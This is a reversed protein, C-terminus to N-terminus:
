PVGDFQPNPRFFFYDITLVPPDCSGAPGGGDRHIFKVRITDTDAVSRSQLVWCPNINYQLGSYQFQTPEAQVFVKDGVRVGRAACTYTAEDAITLAGPNVYCSGAGAYTFYAASSGVKTDVVPSPSAAARPTVTAQVATSTATAAPTPSQAYATSSVLALAVAILIAKLSKM